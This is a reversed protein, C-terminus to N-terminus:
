NRKKQRQSSRASCTLWLSGLLMLCWSSPEPTPEFIQFPYDLPRGADTIQGWNPPSPTWLADGVRTALDAPIFGQQPDGGSYDSLSTAWDFWYTGSPLSLNISADLFMVSYVSSPYDAAYLYAGTFGTDSMVNAQTDGWIIHSNADAPSGDWIRLSMRTFKSTTTGYEYLFFRAFGIDWTEGAPVTFDDAVRAGYYEVAPVGWVGWGSPVICLDTGGPGEGPHNIFAGNDYLLGSQQATSLNALFSCFGWVAMLQLIRRAIPMRLTNQRHINM